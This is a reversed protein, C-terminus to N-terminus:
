IDGFFLFSRQADPKLSKARAGRRCEPGIGLERSPHRRHVYVTGKHAILIRDQNGRDREPRLAQGIRRHVDDLKAERELQEKLLESLHENM